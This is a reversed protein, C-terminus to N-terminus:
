IMMLHPVTYFREEEVAGLTGYYFFIAVDVVIRNRREEIAAGWACYLLMMISSFLAMNSDLHNSEDIAADEIAVDWYSDSRCGCRALLM